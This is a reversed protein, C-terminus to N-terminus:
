DIVVELLAGRKEELVIAVAKQLAGDLEALTKVKRGVLNHNSAAVAIGVYDPGDRKLDIGLCEDTVNASCGDPHVDCICARTAKWGGNNVVSFINIRVM